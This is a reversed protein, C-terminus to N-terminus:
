PAPEELLYEWVPRYFADGIPAGHPNKAARKTTLLRNHGYPAATEDVNVVAYKPMLGLARYNELQQAYTCGHGEDQSHVFSFFRELPTASPDAFWRAPQNFHINFDKPSGFMLVKAVQHQKAMLAAHGGGQSQGSLILRSWEIVGNPALFQAWQEGPFNAALYRLLLHLRSQISNPVGTNLRQFPPKGHIINNRAKLFADPDSSDHFVSMSVNSPYSLTVVHFGKSAALTCFGLAADGGKGGTGPIFVVLQGRAQVTSNFYSAHEYGDGSFSTIRSDTAAPLVAHILLSSAEPAADVSFDDNISVILALALIFRTSRKCCTM